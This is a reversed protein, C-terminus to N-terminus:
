RVVREVDSDVVVERTAGGGGGSGGGGGNGRGRPPERGQHSFRESVLARAVVAGRGRRRRRAAGGRRRGGGIERRARRREELQELAGLERRGRLAQRGRPRALELAERQPLPREGGVVVGLEVARQEDVHERLQAEHRAEAEACLPQVRQPEGHTRTVAVVGVVVGRMREVDRLAEKGVEGAAMRGGHELWELLQREQEGADHVIELVRAHAIVKAEAGVMWENRAHLVVLVVVLREGSGRGGGSGGYELSM